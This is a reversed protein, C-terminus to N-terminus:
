STTPRAQRFVALVCHESQPLSNHSDWVSVQLPHREIKQGDQKKKQGDWVSADPGAALFCSADFSAAGSALRLPDRLEPAFFPKSGPLLVEGMEYHLAAELLPDLESQIAGM